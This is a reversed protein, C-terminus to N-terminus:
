TWGRAFDGRHRPVVGPRRGGAAAAHLPEAPRRLPPQVAGLHPRQRTSAPRRPLGAAAASAQAWSCWGRQPRGLRRACRLAHSDPGRLPRLLRGDTCCPTSCRRERVLRQWVRRAWPRRGCGRGRGGKDSTPSAVPRKGKDNSGNGRDPASGRDGLHGISLATPSSELRGDILSRENASIEELLLRSRAQVFTPFPEQMPLLTAMVQFRRNLGRILQLTLSQDSVREGVDGLADALGKLRRSYEAISLDGQVTNRFEAGLIIARGPQNDRFLLHLQTWVDYATSTPSVVVEQLEESIVGYMWLVITLDDNRWVASEHLPEAADDLHHQVDYKCCIFYFLQRWKSYSGSELELKSSFYHAISPPLGTSSSPGADGGLRPIM